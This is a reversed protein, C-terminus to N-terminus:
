AAFKPDRKAGTVELFENDLYPSNQSIQEFYLSKQVNKRLLFFLEKRVECRIKKKTYKKAKEIGWELKRTVLFTCIPTWLLAFCLIQLSSSPM